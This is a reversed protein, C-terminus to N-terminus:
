MLGRLLLFPLVMMAECDDGFQRCSVAATTVFPDILLEHSASVRRDGPSRNIPLLSELGFLNGERLLILRSTHLSARRMREDGKLAGRRHGAATVLAVADSTRVVVASHACTRGAMRPM